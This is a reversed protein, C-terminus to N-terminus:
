WLGGQYEDSKLLEEFDSQYLALFKRPHSPHADLPSGIEEYFTARNCSKANLLDPLHEEIYWEKWLGNSVATPGSNVHLLYQSPAMTVTM